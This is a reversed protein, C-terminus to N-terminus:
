VDMENLRCSQKELLFILVCSLNKKCIPADRKEFCKTKLLWSVDFPYLRLLFDFKKIEKKPM